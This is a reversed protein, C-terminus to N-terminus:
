LGLSVKVKKSSGPPSFVVYLDEADNPVEYIAYFEKDMGPSISTEMGTTYPVNEPIYAYMSDIYEYKREQSDILYPHHREIFPNFELNEKGVNKVAFSIQIYRGSTTKDDEMFTNSTLESGLDDASILTWHSERFQITDGITPPAEREAEEEKREETKEVSVIEEEAKSEESKVVKVEDEGESGVGRIISIVVIVIIVWFWWRKLIPKKEGKAM